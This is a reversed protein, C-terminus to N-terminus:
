SCDVTRLTYRGNKGKRWGYVYIKWGAERLIPTMDSDAIKKVRSSVNSGSTCQVAITSGMGVALVDVFGYLDVRRRAFPNWHETVAARYGLNRLHQLTRQTPSM